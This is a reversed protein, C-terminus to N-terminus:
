EEMFDRDLRNIYKLLMSNGSRSTWNSTARMAGNNGLCIDQNSGFRARRIKSLSESVVVVSITMAISVICRVGAVEVVALQIFIFISAKYLQFSAKTTKLERMPETPPFRVLPSRM